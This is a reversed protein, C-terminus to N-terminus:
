WDSTPIEVGRARLRKTLEETTKAVRERQELQRKLGSFMLKESATRPKPLELKVSVRWRSGGVTSVGALKLRERYPTGVFCSVWANGSRSDDCNYGDRKERRLVTYLEAAGEAGDYLEHFGRVVAGDVEWWESHLPAKKWHACETVLHFLEFSFTQKRTLNDLVYVDYKVNEILM